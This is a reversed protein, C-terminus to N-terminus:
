HELTSITSFRTMLSPTALRHRSRVRSWLGPRCDQTSRYARLCHSRQRTKSPLMGVMRSDRSFWTRGLQSHRPERRAVAANAVLPGSGPRSATAVGAGHRRCASVRRDVTNCGCTQPSASAKMATAGNGRFTGRAMVRPAAMEIAKSARMARTSMMSSPRWAPAALESGPSSRAPM